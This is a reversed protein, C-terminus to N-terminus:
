NGNDSRRYTERTFFKYTHSSDHAVFFQETMVSAIFISHEVAYIRFIIPFKLTKLTFPLIYVRYIPTFDTYPTVEASTAASPM